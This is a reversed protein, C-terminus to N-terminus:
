SASVRDLAGKLEELYKVVEKRPTSESYTMAGKHQRYAYLPERLFAGSYGLGLIRIWNAFDASYPLDSDYPGAEKQAKAKVLTCGGNIFNGHQMLGDLIDKPKIIGSFLPLVQSGLLKGHEDVHALGSTVFATSDSGELYVLSRSYVDRSLLFDDAAMLHIIDGHCNQIGENYSAINGKNVPHTIIKARGEYQKMVEHSNDTSGDDILILEMPQITQFLISEIAQALYKGHNKCAIFTSINM